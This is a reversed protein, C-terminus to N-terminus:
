MLKFGSLKVAYKVPNTKIRYYADYDNTFLAMSHLHTRNNLEFVWPKLNQDLGVDVGLDAYNKESKDLVNCAKKCVEIIEQKKKFVEKKKLHFYTDFFEEFSMYKAGEHYNSCVGGPRGLSTVFGTCQWELTHDKQMVARFDIYRDEVMLLDVAQQIIYTYGKTIREVYKAAEENSSFIIPSEDLKAQFSYMGNNKEARILGFARMGNAPKLYLIHHSELMQEIDDFSTLKRTDPLNETILQSKSAMNWYDLKNFYYSNFMRNNTDIQLKKIIQNPVTVRRFIADPFPFIGKDWKGESPNYGYGEILHTDFNIDAVSFVYILGAMSNYLLTYNLLDNLARESMSSKHKFMLLGIVPGIRISKESLILQYTLHAPISLDKLVDCSIRLVNKEQENDFSLSVFLNKYGAKLQVINTKFAEFLNTKGSVVLKGQTQTDPIITYFM